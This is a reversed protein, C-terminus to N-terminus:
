STLSETKVPGYDTMKKIAQKLEDSELWFDVNAEDAKLFKKTENVIEQTMKKVM